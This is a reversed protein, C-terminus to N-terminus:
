NEVYGHIYNVGNTLGSNLLHKTVIDVSAMEATMSSRPDTLTRQRGIVQHGLYDIIGPGHGAWIM